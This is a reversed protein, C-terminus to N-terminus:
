LGVILAVLVAFSVALLGMAFLSPITNFAMLGTLLTMFTLVMVISYVRRARHISKQNLEAIEHQSKAREHKITKSVTEALEIRKGEVERAIAQTKEEVKQAVEATKEEIKQTVAQDVVAKAAEINKVELIQVIEATKGAMLKSRLELIQVRDELKKIADEVQNYAM